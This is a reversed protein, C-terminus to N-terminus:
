FTTVLTDSNASAVLTDGAITLNPATYDDLSHMAVLTDGAETLGDFFPTALALGSTNANIVIYSANNVLGFIVTNGASVNYIVEM